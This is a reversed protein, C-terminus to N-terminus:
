LNTSKQNKGRPLPEPTKTERHKQIKIAKYKELFM